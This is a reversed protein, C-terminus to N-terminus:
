ENKWWYPIEGTKWKAFQKENIYYNRYSKVIDNTEYKNPMCLEFKTLKINDFINSYTMCIKLKELCAHIKNYRIFYEDCLHFALELLWEFNQKSERVWKSIPHNIHTSKYLEPINDKLKLNIATSLLQTSELIMKVVHRDCHYKACIKPDYDLVFINM